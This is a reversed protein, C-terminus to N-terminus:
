EGLNTKGTREIEERQIVQVPSATESDTRLIRSGTVEIRDLTTTDSQTGSPPLADPDQAQALALPALGTLSVALLARRIAHSLLSCPM